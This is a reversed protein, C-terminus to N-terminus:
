VKFWESIESNARFKRILISDTILTKRTPKNNKVRMLVKLKTVRTSSKM